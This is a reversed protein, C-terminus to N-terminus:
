HLGGPILKASTSPTVSAPSKAPTTPAKTQLQTASSTPIKTGTQQPTQTQPINRNGHIASPITNTAPTGSSGQRLTGYIETRAANPNHQATSPIKSHMPTVPNSRRATDVMKQQNIRQQIKRHPIRVGTTSTQMHRNGGFAHRLEQMTKARTAANVTRLKLKLANMAKRRADGRSQKVEKLLHSLSKQQMNQTQAPSSLPMLLIVIFFIGTKLIIHDMM